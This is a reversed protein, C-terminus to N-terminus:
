NFSDHSNNLPPQHAHHLMEAAHKRTMETIKVGGLMRAIEEIREQQDLVRITSSIPQNKESGSSKIVQWQQDGTAAVQPLHTICLVQREKALKKLLHGVIEAVKGGIGVDVEDFVLTPVRGLKSFIVQIALSIRSLEGGSAVKALPRLPLGENVAVQFEIQELGQANGEEIPTLAVAFRGGSMALMQMTASVQHLLAESGQQRAQSLQRALTVYETKAATEQAQLHDINSESDLTELQCRLTDFLQPLEEASTRYKRAIVHIASLRQEIDQLAKPDLDLDQRYHKLGRVGEQLQIRASDLLDTIAELQRDYDVLHHLQTYITDVQQLVASESDSLAEVARDAASLLTAVHSLRNHDSQLKHWEDLTLNLASLEQVQWELQERKSQSEEARQQMTMRLQRCDQWNQYATKVARALDACGSFADLLERQTDKQLLSQHAHQSHIDILFNGALRLQQLTVAHGNIYSRSRGSSEIIRRLLCIDPDGDLDNEQLWDVMDPLRSIEFLANIEARECGMRIQSIDGREGLALTLADIVISKGAGTEGTVITFGPMLDLDIQDVIVFNKISLHKLM